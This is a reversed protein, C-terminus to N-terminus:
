RSSLNVRASIIKAIRTKVSVYFESNAEVDFAGFINELVWAAQNECCLAINEFTRAEYSVAGM